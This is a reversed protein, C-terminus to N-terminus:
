LVINLNESSDDCNISTLGGDQPTHAPLDDGAICVLSPASADSGMLSGDKKSNFLYIVEDCGPDEM